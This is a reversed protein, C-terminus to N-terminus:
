HVYIPNRSKSPQALGTLTYKRQDTLLLPPPKLIKEHNDMLIRRINTCSTVFPTTSGTTDMYSALDATSVQILIGLHDVLQIGRQVQTTTVALTVTQTHGWAWASWRVTILLVIKVRVVHYIISGAFWYLTIVVGIACWMILNPLLTIIASRDSSSSPTLDTRSWFGAVMFSAEMMLISLKPYRLQRAQGHSPWRGVVM